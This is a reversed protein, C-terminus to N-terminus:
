ESIGSCMYMYMAALMCLLRYEYVCSGCFLRVYNFMLNAVFLKSLPYTCNVALGCETESRCMVNALQFQCGETCCPNTNSPSCFFVHDCYM